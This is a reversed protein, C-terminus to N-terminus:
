LGFALKAIINKQVERSGGYVTAARQYIFASARGPVYDPWCETEPLEAGGNKESEFDRLAKTGLLEMQLGTVRQQMESGRNKLASVVADANHANPADALIRLVSWELALLEIEVEAIKRAFEPIEALPTNGRRERRAIAKAKDLDRKNAYLMASATREKSLLYKAYTWGQGREGVIQDAPIRVNDLFVENLEHGGNIGTIPRITIGPTDMKILLMSIGRQPKADPETRVLFFGWDAFQADSTWIKQGQIRWEDGALEARTRLSALDSGAGPESFGQCWYEEGSLIAPLFRDKQAQSGFAILVPAIMHSGQMGYDLGDANYLEEMFIHKRIADWGTGGYEVPWHPAGWGQAALIGQWRRWDSILPPHAGVFTRRALDPPVHTQMFRRIEQRFEEYEPGFSFAV